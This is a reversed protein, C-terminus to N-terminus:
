RGKLREVLLDRMEEDYKGVGRLASEIIEGSTSLGGPRSHRSDLELLLGSIEDLTEDMRQIVAHMEASLQHKKVNLRILRILGRRIRVPRSGKTGM